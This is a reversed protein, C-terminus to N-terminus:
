ASTPLASACKEPPRSRRCAQRNRACRATRDRLSWRGRPAGVDRKSGSFHSASHAPRDQASGPVPRALPLGFGQFQSCDWSVPQQSGTPALWCPELGVQSVGLWCTLLSGAHTEALLPVSGPTALVCAMHNLGAIPLMTSLLIIRVTTRLFVGVTELPRFAATRFAYPRATLVGGPDFLLAHM